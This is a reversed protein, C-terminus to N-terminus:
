GKDDSGFLYWIAWGRKVIKGRRRGVVDEEPLCIDWFAYWQAFILKLKALPGAPVEAGAALEPYLQHLRQKREQELDTVSGEDEDSDLGIQRLRQVWEAISQSGSAPRIRLYTEGTQPDTITEQIVEAGTQSETPEQIVAWGTEPDVFTKKM